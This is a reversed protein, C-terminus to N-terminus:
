RSGRERTRPEDLARELVESLSVGTANALHVASLMLEGIMSALVGTNISQGPQALSIKRAEDALRGAASVIDLCRVELSPEVASRGLLAKAKEQLQKIQM